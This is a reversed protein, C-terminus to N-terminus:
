IILEIPSWMCAVAYFSELNHINQSNVNPIIKPKPIQIHQSTNKTIFKQKKIKAKQDTVEQSMPFTDRELGLPCLAFHAFRQVLWDTGRSHM